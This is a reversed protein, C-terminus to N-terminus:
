WGSRTMAISYLSLILLCSKQKLKCNNEQILVRHSDLMYSQSTRFDAKEKSRIEGSVVENIKIRDLDNQLQVEQLARSLNLTVEAISLSYSQLPLVDPM